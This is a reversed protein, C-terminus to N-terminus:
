LTKKFLFAVPPVFRCDPTPGAICGAYLMALKGPKGQEALATSTSRHQLCNINTCLQSPQTLQRIQVILCHSNVTAASDTPHDMFPLQNITPCHCRLRGMPRLSHSVRKKANYSSYDQKISGAHISQHANIATQQSSRLQLCRHDNQKSMLSMTRSDFDPESFIYTIKSRNQKCLRVQIDGLVATM